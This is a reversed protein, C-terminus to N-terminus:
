LQPENKYRFMPVPAADFVEMLFHRYPAEDWPGGEFTASRETRDIELDADTRGERAISASDRVLQRFHDVDPEVELKVHARLCRAILFMAHKQQAATLSRAEHTWTALCPTFAEVCVAFAASDLSPPLAPLPPPNKSLNERVLKEQERRGRMSVRAAERKQMRAAHRAEAAATQMRLVEQRQYHAASRYLRTM